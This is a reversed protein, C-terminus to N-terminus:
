KVNKYGSKITLGTLRNLIAEKTQNIGVHRAVSKDGTPDSKIKM